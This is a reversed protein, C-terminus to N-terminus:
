SSEVILIDNKLYFSIDTSQFLIHPTQPVPHVTCLHTYSVPVYSLSPYVYNSIDVGDYGVIIYDDPIKKRKELIYKIAYSVIIDTSFVGDIEPHSDLQKQIIKCYSSIDFEDAKLEYDICKINHELLEDAFVSHRMWAPSKIDSDGRIQLVCHANGDIFPRAALKGGRIHNSHVSPISEDLFVDM